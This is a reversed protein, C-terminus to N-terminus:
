KSCKRCLAGQFGDDAVVSMLARDLAHDATERYAEASGHHGYNQATGTKRATWCERGQADLVAADVVVRADYGANVHVNENIQIQYLSLAVTPADPGTTRVGGLRFMERAGSRVWSVADGALTIPQPPVAGSELTRQGIVRGRLANKVVVSSAIACSKAVTVDSPDLMTKYSPAFSTPALSKQACAQMLLVSAGLLAILCPRM